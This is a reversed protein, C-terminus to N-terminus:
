PVMSASIRPHCRYNEVKLEEYTLSELHEITSLGKNIELIPFTYATRTLQEKVAEFHEQYIHVDGLSLHLYRPVKLTLKAILSLLLSTSAINFPLGLFADSSRNYCYCDLFMGDCYFQLILSHCPWLVGLHVQAPNYTTMLIRRSHPDNSISNVVNQLQDIGTIDGIPRGTEEDYPANFHRWQYGYMSGMMGEERYHFGNRDLFDRSTNGKWIKVKKAELKKTDTEGRIFFLLEEVIGRWFMEKTTLLPFGHRLDFKLHEVFLSRTMGNRGERLIGKEMVKNLLRLYQGEGEPTQRMVYHRFTDHHEEEIISYDSFSIHVFRDCVATQKMISIHLIHPYKSALNFIESGGAVWVTKYPFHKRAYNLASDFSNFGYLNDQNAYRIISIDNQTLCFILRRRLRPLHEVTKRGMILIGDFTKRRFLRLEETDKWAMGGQYGIGGEPTTSM